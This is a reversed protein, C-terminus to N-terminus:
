AKSKIPTNWLKVRDARVLVSFSRLVVVLALMASVLGTALSAKIDRCWLGDSKRSCDVVIVDILVLIIWAVFISFNLALTIWATRSMEIRQRTKAFMHLVISIAATGATIGGVVFVAIEANRETVDNAADAPRNKRAQSLYGICVIAVVLQALRTGVYVVFRLASWHSMDAMGVVGTSDGKKRAATPPKPVAAPTPAAQPRHSNMSTIDVSALHVPNSIHAHGGEGGGGAASLYANRNSYDDHPRYSYSM